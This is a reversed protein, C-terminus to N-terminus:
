KSFSSVLGGILPAILGFLPGLFGGQQIIHRKKSLPIKQDAMARIQKKYKVLKRLRKPDKTINGKVVNSCCECISKILSDDARALVQKRVKGSSKSIKKLIHANKKMHASFM